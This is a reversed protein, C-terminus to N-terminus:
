QFHIFLRCFHANLKHMSRYDYLIDEQDHYGDNCGSWTSLTDHHFDFIQYVNVCLDNNRSLADRADSSPRTTAIFGVKEELATVVSALLGPVSAMSGGRGRPVPFHIHDSITNILTTPSTFSCTVNFCTAAAIPQKALPSTLLLADAAHCSYSTRRGRIKSTDTRSVHVSWSSELLAKDFDSFSVSFLPDKLPGTWLFTLLARGLFLFITQM